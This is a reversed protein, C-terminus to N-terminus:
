KLGIAQALMYNWAEESVEELDIHDGEFYNAPLGVGWCQLNTKGTEEQYCIKDIIYCDYEPMKKRVRIYEVLDMTIFSLFKSKSRRYYKM